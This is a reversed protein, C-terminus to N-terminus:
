DRGQDAPLRAPAERHPQRAEAAQRITPKKQTLSHSLLFKKMKRIFDVAKSTTNWAHIPKVAPKIAFATQGRTVDTPALPVLIPSTHPFRTDPLM